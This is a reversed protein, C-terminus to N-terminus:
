TRSRWVHSFHFRLERLCARLLQANGDIDAACEGVANGRALGVAAYPHALRQGRGIVGAHRYRRDDIVQQPLRAGGTGALVHQVLHHM